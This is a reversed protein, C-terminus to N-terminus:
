PPPWQEDGMIKQSSSILSPDCHPAKEYHSISEYRCIRNYHGPNDVKLPGPDHFCTNPNNIRQEHGNKNESAAELTYMGVQNVDCHSVKEYRSIGEYQCIKDYQEKNDVLPDHSCTNPSNMRQELGDSDTELLQNVDFHPTKEYRSLVEEYQHKEAHLYRSTDINSRNCPSYNHQPHPHTVAFKVSSM